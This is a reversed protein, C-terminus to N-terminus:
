KRAAAIFSSFLKKSARDSLTKEPHWQVAVLFQKGRGEMAEVVGDQSVASLRLGRGPTKVSQHHASRVKFSCDGTPRCEGQGLIHCMKTGEFVSVPHLVKEGAKSAGHKIAKPVELAIDQYLSGGLAVNALQAGYCIALIPKKSAVVERFPKLEFRVRGADSLRRGAGALPKQKYYRPPIDDGGTFLFGDLRKILDPIAQEMSLLPVPIGGAKVVAIGYDLDLANLQRAPEKELNMTVGILPKMLGGMTM